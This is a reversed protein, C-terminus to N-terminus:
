PLGGFNAAVYGKYYASIANPALNLAVGQIQQLKVKTTHIIDNPALNLAIGGFKSCCIHEQELRLRLDRGPKVRGLIMCKAGYHM